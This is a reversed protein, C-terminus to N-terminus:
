QAQECCEREPYAQIESSTAYARVATNCLDHDSEDTLMGPHWSGFVALQGDGHPSVVPSVGVISHVNSM